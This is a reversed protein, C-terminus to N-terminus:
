STAAVPLRLRPGPPSFEVGPHASCVVLLLVGRDSPAARLARYPLPLESASIRTWSLLRSELKPVDQSELKPVRAAGPGRSAHYVHSPPIM